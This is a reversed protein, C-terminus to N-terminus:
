ILRAFNTLLITEASGEMPVPMWFRKFLRNFVLWTLNPICAFVFLSPSFLFFYLVHREANSLTRGAEAALQVISSSAIFGTRAVDLQDFKRKFREEREEGETGGAIYVYIRQYKGAATRSIFLMAPVLALLYIGVLSTATVLGPFQSFSLLSIFLYFWARGWLRSLLRFWFFVGLQCSRTIKSVPAEILMMVIGICFLLFYGLSGIGKASSANFTMDFVAMATMAMGGFFLFWRLPFWNFYKVLWSPTEPRENHDAVAANASKIDDVTAEYANSIQEKAQSNVLNATTDHAILGQTDSNTKLQVEEYATNEQDDFPNAM